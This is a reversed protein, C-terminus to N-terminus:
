SRPRRMTLTELTDLVDKSTCGLREAQALLDSCLQNLETAKSSCAHARAPIAAVFIGTGEASSVFGEQELAAYAREVCDPNIALEVAMERVSPLPEGPFLEGSSIARRIQERIQRSLSAGGHIVIEPNSLVNTV